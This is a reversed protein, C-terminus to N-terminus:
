IMGFYKFAERIAKEKEPPCQPQRSDESKPLNYNKGVGIGCKRKIQSIYLNSVKLRTHELVYEKIQPYTAGDQFESMDMDELSFEVRIKKSDVEGKSLLVVTEVHGTRPFLDVGQYKKLAYGKECLIRCDRAATSPNCSIMIVKEPAMEAIADLVEPGCGKRPPDVLIVDPRLGESALRKAAGSADACFFEARDMGNKRANERANEVAEPVVEVGTLRGIQGYASLGISGIGCYLDLLHEDGRFEAFGFALQYLREAQAKNVQYFAAPSVALEVGLLTDKLEMSGWVLEYRKGLIVNTRDPNVNVCVGAIEPFGQALRQALEQIRPPRRKVAVMCVLIKGTSPAQRLYVHRYIGQGSEERYVPLRHERLFELIVKLIRGFVPPQLPCDEAPIVRHSNRAYFGALIDGGAAVTLPYQAKNRYGGTEAAGLIPLPDVSFRGLRRFADRVAKDKLRLEAEYTIHRFACGGCRRFVGCGGCPDTGRDPSPEMLEELIGFGYSKLVKVIKIRAVDGPATMPVFVAFGEIRCVGSGELTLDEIRVEYSQNKAIMLRTREMECLPQQM